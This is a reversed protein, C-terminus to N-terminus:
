KVEEYTPLLLEVLTRQLEVSGHHALACLVVALIERTPMHKTGDLIAVHLADSGNQSAHPHRPCVRMEKEGAQIEQSGM